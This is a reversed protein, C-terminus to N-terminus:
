DVALLRAAGFQEFYVLETPVMGCGFEMCVRDRLTTIDALALRRAM